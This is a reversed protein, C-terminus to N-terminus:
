EAFAWPITTKRSYIGYPGPRVPAVLPSHNWTSVLHYFSLKQNAADYTMYGPRKVIFAGYGDIGTLEQRSTLSWPESLSVSRYNIEGLRYLFLIRPHLGTLEEDVLM